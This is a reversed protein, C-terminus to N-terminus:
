FCIYRFLFCLYKATVSVLASLVCNKFSRSFRGIRWRSQCGLTSSNPGLLRIRFLSNRAAFVLRHIPNRKHPRPLDEYAWDLCVSLSSPFRVNPNSQGRGCEMATAFRGGLSYCGSGSSEWVLGRWFSCNAVWFCPRDAARLWFCVISLTKGFRISQTLCVFNACRLPQSGAIGYHKSAVCALRHHHYPSFQVSHGHDNDLLLSPM